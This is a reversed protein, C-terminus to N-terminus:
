IDEKSRKPRELLPTAPDRWHPGKLDITSPSPIIPDPLRKFLPLDLNRSRWFGILATAMKQKEDCRSRYQLYLESGDRSLTMGAVHESEPHRRRWDFMAEGVDYRDAKVGTWDLAYGIICESRTPKEDAIASGSAVLALSLLTLKRM